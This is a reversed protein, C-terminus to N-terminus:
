EMHTARHHFLLNGLTHSYRDTPNDLDWRTQWCEGVGVRFLHNSWDLSCFLKVSVVHMYKQM